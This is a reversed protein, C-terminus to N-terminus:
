FLSGLNHCNFIVGDFVPNIAVIGAHLVYVGHSTNCWAVFLFADPFVRIAPFSFNHYTIPNDVTDVPM